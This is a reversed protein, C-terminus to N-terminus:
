LKISRQAQKRFLNAARARSGVNYRRPAGSIEFDPRASILRHALAFGSRDCVSFAASRCLHPDPPVGDGRLDEIAATKEEEGRESGQSMEVGM